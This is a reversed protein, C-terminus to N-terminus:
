IYLWHCKNTMPCNGNNRAWPLKRRHFMLMKWGFDHFCHSCYWLIHSCVEGYLVEDVKKSAGGCWSCWSDREKWCWRGQLPESVFFCLRHRNSSCRRHLAQFSAVVVEAIWKVGPDMKKKWSNPPRRYREALPNWLTPWPLWFLWVGFPLLPQFAVLLFWIASFSWPIFGCSWSINPLVILHFGVRVESPNATVIFSRRCASSWYSLIRVGM